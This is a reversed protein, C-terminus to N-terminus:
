DQKSGLIAMVQAMLQDGTMPESFEDENIQLISNTDEESLIMDTRANDQVSGQSIIDNIRM